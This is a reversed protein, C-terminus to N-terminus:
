CLLDAGRRFDNRSLDLVELTPPLAEPAPLPATIGNHPLALTRLRRMNAFELPIGGWILAESIRSCPVLLPVAGNLARIGHRM